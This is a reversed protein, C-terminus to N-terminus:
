VPCTATAIHIGLTSVIHSCNYFYRNNSTLVASLSPHTHAGNGDSPYVRCLFVVGYVARGTSGCGAYRCTGGPELAPGWLAGKASEM